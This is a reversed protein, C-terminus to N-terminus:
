LEAIINKMMGLGSYIKGFLSFILKVSIQYFCQYVSM